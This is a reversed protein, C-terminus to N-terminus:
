TSRCSLYKSTLLYITSTSVYIHDAFFVKRLIKHDPNRDANGFASRFNSHQKMDTFGSSKLFGSSALAISYSSCCALFLLRTIFNWSFSRKFIESIDSFVGTPFCLQEVIGTLLEVQNAFFMASNLNPSEGELFFRSQKSWHYGKLFSSFHKKNWRKENELYKFIQRSKKSM